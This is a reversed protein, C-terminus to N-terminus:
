VRKNKTKNFISHYMKIKDTKLFIKLTQILILNNKKKFKLLLIRLKRKKFNKELM